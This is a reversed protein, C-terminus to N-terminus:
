TASDTLLRLSLDKLEECATTPNGSDFPPKPDYEVALQIARALTEGALQAALYLAMDIGASVGAATIIKGARVYRETVYEVGFTRELYNGSAWYTTARDRLLGAKGLILSGTCVSVTWATHQDIERIWDLLVENKMAGSTGREGGGPVLLVDLRDIEDITRDALLGVCGTDTRVPGRCEAIMTVTAGPLRVLLDAPGAADLLSFGDYLLIGVHPGPM